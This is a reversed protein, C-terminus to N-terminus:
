EKTITEDLNLLVRALATWAGREPTAGDKAGTLEKLHEPAAVLKEKQHELFATLVTKESVSPLRGTCRRFAFAIRDADTAGGEALTKTALAQACEM